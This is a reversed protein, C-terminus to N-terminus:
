ICKEIELVSRYEFELSQTLTNYFDDTIYIRKRQNQTQTKPGAWRLNGPLYGKDNDIRDLTFDPPRNGLSKEIWLIFAGIDECWPGYVGIGRQGYNHYDESDSIYCRRLMNKWTKYLAHKSFGHKINKGKSLCGCSKTNGNRLFIGKVIKEKGCDCECLWLVEGRKSRGAERIIKLSDYRNGTENIKEFM